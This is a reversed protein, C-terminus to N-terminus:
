RAAKRSTRWAVLRAVLNLAMVIVILTLAAAWARDVAAPLGRTAEVYILQPLATQAGHFPDTNISTTFFTTLLLPATEGTVRAVGLMVGTMIGPLATPVVIDKITRWRAVGLAYSSERLENPVLKLMEETSRIVVPLMLIALALAGYVGAFSGGLTLICLTYIFLGAVISPLGTMVDVFFSITKALRGRGYEVLYIAALLALPVAILTAIGVQQVTGIIAHYIGGTPQNPNVGRMSHTLFYPSLRELGKAIVTGLVAVLPVVAAVFCAIVLSTAVM